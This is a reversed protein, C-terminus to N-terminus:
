GGQLRQQNVGAFDEADAGPHNVSRDDAPRYSGLRRWVSFTISRAHLDVGGYFAHPQNYFRM